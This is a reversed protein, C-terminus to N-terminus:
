AEIHTTEELAPPVDDDTVENSLHLDGTTALRRPRAPSYSNGLANPQARRWTAGGDASGAEVIRGITSRMCLALRGDKLEVFGSRGAPFLANFTDNTM